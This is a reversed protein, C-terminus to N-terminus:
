KIFCIDKNEQNQLTLNHLIKTACDREMANLSNFQDEHSCARLSLIM